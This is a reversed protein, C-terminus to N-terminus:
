IYREFDEDSLPYREGNEYEYGRVGRNNSLYIFSFNRIGEYCNIFEYDGGDYFIDSYIIEVKEIYDIKVSYENVEIKKKM